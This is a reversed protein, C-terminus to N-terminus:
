QDPFVSAVTNRTCPQARLELVQPSPSGPVPVTSLSPRPGQRSHRWRGKGIQLSWGAPKERLCGLRGWSVALVGEWVQGRQHCPELGVREM